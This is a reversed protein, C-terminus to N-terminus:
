SPLSDERRESSGCTTQVDRVSGTDRCPIKVDGDFSVLRFLSILDGQLEALRDFHDVFQQVAPPNDPVSLGVEAAASLLRQNGTHTFSHFLLLSPLPVTM